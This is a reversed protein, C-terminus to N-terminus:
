APPKKSGWMRTSQSKVYGSLQFRAEDQFLTTWLELIIVFENRGGQAAILDKDTINIWVHIKFHAPIAWDTYSSAVPQVSPHYPNSEQPTESNKEEAGHGSRSQPGGLRRDM